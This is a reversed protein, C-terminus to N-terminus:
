NSNTNYHRFSPRSHNYSNTLIYTYHERGVKIQRHLKDVEAAHKSLLGGEMRQYRESAAVVQNQMDARQDALSGLQSLLLQLLFPHVPLM